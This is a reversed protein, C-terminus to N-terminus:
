DSSPQDWSGLDVEASSKLPREVFFDWSDVEGPRADGRRLSGPTPYMLWMDWVWGQGEGAAEWSWLSFKLGRSQMSLAPGPESGLVRLETM